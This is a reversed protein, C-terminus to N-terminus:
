RLLSAADALLRGEAVGREWVGGGFVTVFGGFDTPECAPGGFLTPEAICM